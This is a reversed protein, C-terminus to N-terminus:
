LTEEKQYLFSEKPPLKFHNVKWELLSKVSQNIILHFHPMVYPQLLASNNTAELVLAEQDGRSAKNNNIIIVKSICLFLLSVKLKVLESSRGCFYYSCPKRLILGEGGDELIHQMM